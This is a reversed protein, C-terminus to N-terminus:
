GYQRSGFPAGDACTTQQFGCPGIPLSQGVLGLKPLIHAVGFDVLVFLQLFCAIGGLGHLRWAGLHERGTIIERDMRMARDSRRTSHGLELVALDRAPARRLLRM